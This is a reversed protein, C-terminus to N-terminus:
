PLNVEKWVSKDANSQIILPVFTEEEGLRLGIAICTDSNADCAIDRLSAHSANLSGDLTIQSWTVGADFSHIMIDYAQHTASAVCYNDKCTIANIGIEPFLAELDVTSWTNGGDSTRVLLAHSNAFEYGHLICLKGECFSGTFRANSAIGDFNVKAWSRRGDQSQLVSSPFLSDLPRMIIICISDGCDAGEAVTLQDDQSPFTEYEWTKGSDVSQVLLPYARDYGHDRDINWYEGTAFYNSASANMIVSSLVAMSLAKISLRM